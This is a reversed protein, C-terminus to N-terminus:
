VITSNPASGLADRTAPTGPAPKNLLQNLLCTKGVHPPGFPMCQAMYMPLSGQNRVADQFAQINKETEADEFIETFLIYFFFM